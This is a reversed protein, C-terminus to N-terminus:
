LNHKRQVTIPIQTLYNAVLVALLYAKKAFQTLTLINM